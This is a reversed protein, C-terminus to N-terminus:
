IFQSKQLLLCCYILLCNHWTPGFSFYLKGFTSLFHKREKLGINWKLSFLYLHIEGEGHVASGGDVGNNLYAVQSELLVLGMSEREMGTVDRSESGGRDAGQGLAM